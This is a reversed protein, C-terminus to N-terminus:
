QFLAIHAQTLDPEGDSKRRGILDPNYSKNYKHKHAEYMIMEDSDKLNKNMLFENHIKKNLIEKFADNASQPLPVNIYNSSQPRAQKSKRRKHTLSSMNQTNNRNRKVLPISCVKAM